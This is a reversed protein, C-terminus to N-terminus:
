IDDGKVTRIRNRFTLWSIVNSKRRGRENMFMFSQSFVWIHCDTIMKKWFFGNKLSIHMKQIYDVINSQRMWDYAVFSIRVLVVFRVHLLRKGRQDLFITINFRKL